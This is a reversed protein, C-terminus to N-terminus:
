SKNKTKNNKIKCLHGKSWYKSERVILTTGALVLWRAIGLNRLHRWERIWIILWSELLIACWAIRRIQRKTNIRYLSGCSMVLTWCARSLLRICLIKAWGINIGRKSTIICIFHLPLFCVVLSHLSCWRIFAIRIKRSNTTLSAVGTNCICEPQIRLVIPMILIPPHNLCLIQCTSTAPRKSKATPISTNFWHAITSFLTPVPKLKIM